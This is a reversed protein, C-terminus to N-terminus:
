LMNASITRACMNPAYLRSKSRQGYKRAYGRTRQTDKSTGLGSIDLLDLTRSGGPRDGPCTKRDGYHSTHQIFGELLFCKPM